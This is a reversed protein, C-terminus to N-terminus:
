IANTTHKLDLCQTAIRCARARMYDRRVKVRQHKNNAFSKEIVHFRSLIHIGNQSCEESFYLHIYRILSLFLIRIKTVGGSPVVKSKLLNIRWQLQDFLVLFQYM